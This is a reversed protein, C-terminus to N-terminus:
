KVDELKVSKTEKLFIYAIPLIIYSILSFVIFIMGLDIFLLAAANLLLGITGGFTAVFSKFGIGTGRVDTPLTEITMIRMVGGAGIGCLHTLFFGIMVISFANQPDLAGFVWIVIGIPIFFMWVIYLPKRGIRDAFIANIMFPVFSLFFGLFLLASVQPQTVYSEDSSLYNEFLLAWTLTSASIFSILLIGKYSRRGEMNLISKLDEKIPRKEIKIGSEKMKEYKSTEKVSFLVIIGIIFGSIMPFLAVGRWNANADTIFIGRFIVASVPGLVGGIMMIHSNQARKNPDSEENVYLLWMDSAVFFSLLFACVVYMVYSSSLFIGLSAFAMGFITIALVKKRGIKDALYQTVFLFYMGGTSIATSFTITANQLNDPLHFLFEEKVASMIILTFVSGYGDIIVVGLLLVTLFKYYRKSRSNTEEKLEDKISEM